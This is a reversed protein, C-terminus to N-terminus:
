ETREGSRRCTIATWPTKKTAQEIILPDVGMNLLAIKDIRASEGATRYVLYDEIRLGDLDYGDLLSYLEDSIGPVREKSGGDTYGKERELDKMQDQIQILRVAVSEMREADGPAAIERLRELTPRRAEKAAAKAAAEAMKDLKNKTM